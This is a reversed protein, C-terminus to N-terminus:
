GRRRRTPVLGLLLLLLAVPAAQGAALSSECDCGGTIEDASDDDDEPTDDDDDVASDDDDGPDCGDDDLDTLGDCDNDVGDDCLAEGEETLDPSADPDADDCDGECTAVGDADLDAEDAPIQLDCDNDLGDCLEPAGPYTDVDTDDCDDECPALGDGDVDIEEDDPSGDCDNDLGDCAEPAAPYTLPDLDDCDGDCVFSGDGDEDVEDADVLGDCDTDVGDCVETALSNVGPDLDDCDGECDTEGDGDEDTDEDTAAFCDNDVGDCVEVALPNVSGDSEDCDGDCAAIGDGDIDVAEDTAPDCDNDVGDCVEVNGPFATADADDCDQCTIVGDGDDDSVEDAGPAGDCDNDMGDCVEIAGPFVNADGDDCDDACVSYSDGDADVDEDTAPDCDNDLGDCSEVNGPFAAPEADDCDDCSLAGDADADVEGDLDFDTLGNCDNDLGDCVETAGPYITADLDDCDGACIDVGDGDADATEDTASDCDNDQGDCAEVNGPFNAPDADDCDACGPVGDGDADVEDSADFDLLGNCDNDVGDCLEVNGPFATPDDDDCDACAFSGDGDEDGTAVILEWGNFVGDDITAFDDTIELTWVGLGEEGDFDSLLGEPQFAGDFPASGDTIAVVAEDDLVTGSFDDGSGGVDSFLEVVTGAPSILFVDLDADWVHTIDVAVNVDLVAGPVLIEAEVLVPNVPGLLEGAGTGVAIELEEDPLGSCDNDLGDCVETAGPFVAPDADDCDGPGWTVLCDPEADTFFGDLDVDFDEDELADCDNDLGDCAEVGASFNLDDADDCDGDCESEGDGDDDVTELTASDCDNDITDCLEPAGLFVEALTDDCDGACETMGDGDDDVEQDDVGPNGADDLGNCDNDLGDCLEPANPNVLANTDDCDGACAAVYDLDDDAFDEDIGQDCDNDVGDCVEVAGPFVAPDSDDCDVECGTFGDGDTDTTGDITLHVFWGGVDGDDISPTDDSVLLTWTGSADEGDFDALSGEPQRPGFYPPAGSTIPTSAEDDFLTNAYAGAGFGNDTSLEVQTGAPSVVYIDLDALWAHTSIIEVDVDLLLGSLSVPLDFALDANGFADPITSYMGVAFSLRLDDAFGSCDDDVGNGCVEAAGPFIAPNTDDCDVETWAAACGADAGDYFLDGDVDFGEDVDTDCDDDTANCVETISPGVNADGDDCDGTCPSDGDGDADVTEDTTPDCDNDLSDCLEPAGPYTDPDVDDCDGECESITDFDDDTEQGDVDPNGADLLGDCDSDLGDCLEPAGPFVAPDADDCDGGCAPVGDGDDDTFGEDVLGNCDNDLADCVELGGPLVDAADDDCDGACETFGDGDSDDTGDVTLIISWGDLTGVDGGTDDTVSLYWAGAAAEGDFDALSGEPAFTGTFPAAGGTVPDAAEDDFVTGVYNDGSGGNDTTLEVQTGAPSILFVDLDADWTHSVELTVDVDQVLGAYAVFAPVVVPAELSDIVAGVGLGVFVLEGGDLVGDCDNDIGDDCVEAAGPFTAPEGDDCDGECAFFGDTDGDVEQGGVGPNGADDLGNCDDDAGNCLEEAGPFVAPDADDCDGACGAIGDLDGDVFGNDVVADCDNDIGDCIETNGPFSAAVLDDCDGACLTVSDGDEDAMGAVTFLLTWGLLEGDNISPDDDIVQLTWTGTVPEGDVVALPSEPQFSGTYPPTSSTITTTAEDDFVTGTYDDNYSGNDTSLEVLAGSPSILWIDLNDDYAHDIDIAVDLDTVLGPYTVTAEFDLTADGGNPIPTGAGEGVVPQVGEDAAGSCDQDIGDGCLDAGGPFITPDGDDCDVPDYAADCGSAADFFTDGDADFGEDVAGDCDNDQGDCVETLLTSNSADGDDCDGACVTEGDGDGDVAEDTAPDCDTDLGDCLEPAGPYVTPDGDDCDNCGLVGDGDSDGSSCTTFLTAEGDIINAVDCSWELAYGSSANGGVTDQIGVTAGAGFDYSASGFDTDQWHFEIDGTPLLHVQFWSDGVASYRPVGEWSVIFRDGATDHWILVEGSNAPNLDDWLPAIDPALTSTSPLCANGTGVGGGLDFRLGGNAGVRVGTYDVGYFNFAWPLTVNAEGDDSLGLPTGGAATLDVFDYVTPLYQYGFADPGGTQAFVAAPTLLAVLAALAALRFSYM